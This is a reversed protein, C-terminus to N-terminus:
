CDSFYTHSFFYLYSKKCTIKETYNGVTILMAKCFNLEAFKNGSVTFVFDSKYNRIGTNFEPKQQIETITFFKANIRIHQVM